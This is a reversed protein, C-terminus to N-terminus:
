APDAPGGDPLAGDAWGYGWGDLDPHALRHAGLISCAHARHENAHHVAQVVLMWARAGPRGGRPATEREPDPGSALYARWGDRSREARRRLVDPPAAGELPEDGTGTLRALYDADADVLHTLTEHLTGYTGPTTAALAEEGLELSRELLAETAWGSHGLFRELVADAWPGAVVGAPPTPGSEVFALTSLNPPEIGAAGLATGIQARHDDGHQVYEVLVVWDTVGVRRGEHVGWALRRPDPGAALVARLRETSEEALVALRDLGGLQDRQVWDSPDDGTLRKLYGQEGRVVHHLTTAIPGFTGPVERELVAPDLAACTRLVQGTAWANREYLALVPHM